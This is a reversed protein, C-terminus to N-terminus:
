RIRNFKYKRRGVRIWSGFPLDIPEATKAPSVVTVSRCVSRCVVSTQLLLGCRRVYYQLATYFSNYHATSKSRTSHVPTFVYARRLVDADFVVVTVSTKVLL